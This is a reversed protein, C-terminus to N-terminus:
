PLSENPIYMIVYGPHQFLLVWGRYGPLFVLPSLQGAFRSGFFFFGGQGLGGSLRRPSAELWTISTKLM